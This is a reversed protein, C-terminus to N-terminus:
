QIESKTRFTPSQEIHTHDCERIKFDILYARYPSIM